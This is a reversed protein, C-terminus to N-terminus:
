QAARSYLKLPKRGACSPVAGTLRSCAKILAGIRSFAKAQSPSPPRQLGALSVHKCGARLYNLAMVVHHVCRRQCQCLYARGSPKCSQQSFIGPYPVPLPFFATPVALSSDRRLPLTSLLFHSFQTRSAKLLRPLSSVWSCFSFESALEQDLVGPALDLPPGKPLGPESPLAAPSLATKGRLIESIRM